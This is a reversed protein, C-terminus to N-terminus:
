SSICFHGMYLTNRSSLTIGFSKYMIEALVIVAIDIQFRKLFSSVLWPRVFGVVVREVFRSGHFGLFVSNLQLLINCIKLFTGKILERVESHM